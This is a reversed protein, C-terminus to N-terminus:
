KKLLPSPEILNKMITKMNARGVGEGLNIYSFIQFDDNTLLITLVSLSPKDTSLLFLTPDPEFNSPPPTM